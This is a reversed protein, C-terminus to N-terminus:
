SSVLYHKSDESVHVIVISREFEEFCVFKRLHFIEVSNTISLVTGCLM